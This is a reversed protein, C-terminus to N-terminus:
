LRRFQRRLRGVRRGLAVIDARLEESVQAAQVAGAEVEGCDARMVALMSLMVSGEAETIAPGNSPERRPRRMAGGNAM